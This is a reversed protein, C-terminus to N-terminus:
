SPSVGEDSSVFELRGIKELDPKIKLFAEKDTVKFIPRGDLRSISELLMGDACELMLKDDLPDESMVKIHFPTLAYRIAVNQKPTFDDITGFAGYVSGSMIKLAREGLLKNANEMATEIPDMSLKPYADTWRQMRAIAQDNDPPIFRITESELGSPLFVEACPNGDYTSSKGTGADGTWYVQGDWDDASLNLSSTDSWTRLMNVVEEINTSNETDILIEGKPKKM